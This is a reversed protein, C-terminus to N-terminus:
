LFHRCTSSMTFSTKRQGPLNEAPLQDMPHLCSYWSRQCTCSLVRARTIGGGGELRNASSATLRYKEQQLASKQTKLPEHFNNMSIGTKADM